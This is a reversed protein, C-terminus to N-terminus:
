KVSFLLKISKQKDFTHPFGNLSLSEPSENIECFNHRRPWTALAASQLDAITPEVGM